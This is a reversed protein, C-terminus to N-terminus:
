SRSGQLQTRPRPLSRARWFDLPEPPAGPRPVARPWTYAWRPRILLRPQPPSTRWSPARFRSTSVDAAARTELSSPARKSLVHGWSICQPRPFSTSHNAPPSLSRRQLTGAAAAIAAQLEAARLSPQLVASLYGRGPRTTVAAHGVATARRVLTLPRPHVV